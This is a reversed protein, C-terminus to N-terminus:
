EVRIWCESEPFPQHAGVTEMTIRLQTAGVPHQAGVQRSGLGLVEGLFKSQRGIALPGEVEAKTGVEQSIIGFVLVVNEYVRQCQGGARLVGDRDCWRPHRVYGVVM